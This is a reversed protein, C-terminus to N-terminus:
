PKYLILVTYVSGGIAESALGCSTCDPDLLSNNVNESSIWSHLLEKADHGSVGTIESYNYNETIGLVTYWEEGGPRTHAKSGLGACESARTKAAATLTDEAAWEALGSRARYANLVALLQANFDDSSFSFETVASEQVPETSDLANQLVSEDSNFGGFLVIGACVAIVLVVCLIWRYIKM